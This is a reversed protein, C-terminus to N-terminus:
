ADESVGFWLALTNILAIFTSKTCKRVSHTYGSSFFFVFHQLSYVLEENAFFWWKRGLASICINNASLDERFITSSSCM